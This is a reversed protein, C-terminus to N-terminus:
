HSWPNRPNQQQQVCPYFTGWLIRGHDNTFTVHFTQGKSIPVFGSDNQDPEIDHGIVEAGDISLALRRGENRVYIWGNEPAVFGDAVPQGKTYDPFGVAGSNNKIERGDVYIKVTDSDPDYRFSIHYNYTDNKINSYVERGNVYDHIIKGDYKESIRYNSTDNKVNDYIKKRDVYTDVVKHADDYMESIRHRTDDNKVNFDPSVLPVELSFRSVTDGTRFIQITAMKVKTREGDSLTREPAITVSSEWSGDDMGEIPRRGHPGKEDIEDYAINRLAAEDLKAAEVAQATVRQTKATDMAGSSMMAFSQAILIWTLVALSTAVLTFAPMKKRMKMKLFVDKWGRGKAKFFSRM